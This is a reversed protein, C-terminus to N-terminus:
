KFVVNKTLTIQEPRSCTNDSCAMFGVHAKVQANSADTVIFKQRFTVKGGWATLDLDFMEDHYRAPAPAYSIKGVIKIGTSQSFDITTPKPGGEPITMGYIHWGSAPTAIVIIEGETASTMKVNIRWSAHSPAQAYAIGTCSFIVSILLILKQITKMIPHNKRCLYSNEMSYIANECMKADYAM